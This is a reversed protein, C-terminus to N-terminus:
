KKRELGLQRILYSVTQRSVGLRGAVRTYNGACDELAERSWGGASRTSRSIIPARPSAGAGHGAAGSAGTRDRRRRRARRGGCARERARARQRALSARASAGAGRPQAAGAAPPSRACRDLLDIPSCCIMTRARAAAADRRLRRAPSLLSRAPLTGGRGDGALDRHTAALVRVDVRRATARAWGAPDRRGAARAAAAGARVLPLDGIEDLFVTGGHATEFVGKRDRDAGTFAGRVHGFLDSLLLTESLAACNVAVFPRGARPARPPPSARAALEKGTGSEGLILVPLDAPRWGTWAISRPSCRGPEGGGPREEGLMRARRGGPRAPRRSRRPGAPRCKGAFGQLLLPSWRGRVATGRRWAARRPAVAGLKRFTAIAERRWSAPASGPSLLDLDFVLRAARYPELAALAEWDRAPPLGGALLAEWLPAFPTAPRRAAPARALRRGAGPRRPAGRAGARGATEPPVDASSPPPRRRAASGAWPAPPSSASSPGAGPSGSARRPRAARRPLRRPGGGAPGPGARLPGVARRGPRPRAPQRLAPEREGLPRRDRAGRPHAGPAAPDRGPQLLALTSRRPGDCGGALRAAHLFAREAGALDGVAPAPSGSTTGSGARGPAPDAAPPRRPDGARRGGGRRGPRRGRRGAPRPAPALALRPRSRGARGPLGGPLAGPGRRGATGPRARPPWGPSSPPGRTAQPRTSRGASGTAPASRSATAPTSGRPSRPWSPSRPRRSRCRRSAACPPERRAWAASSSSAASPSCAPRPPPLGALGGPRGRPARPRGPGHRAGGAGRRDSAAPAGLRGRGGALAGGRGARAAIGGGRRGLPGASGRHGAAGSRTGPSGPRARPLPLIAPGRDVAPRQRGRARDGGGAGRPGHGAGAAGLPLPRGGPDGGGGRGAAGSRPGAALPRDARPRGAAGGRPGPVVGEGFLRAPSTSCCRRAPLSSRGPAAAEAGVVLRGAPSIRAASGGRPSGGAPATSCRCCGPRRWCRRWRAATPSGRRPWRSRGRRRLSVRISSVPRGAPRRSSSM